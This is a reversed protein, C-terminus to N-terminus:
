SLLPTPTVTAWGCVVPNDAGVVVVATPFDSVVLIDESTNLSANFDFWYIVMGPGFRNLYSHLQPLNTSRHTYEDGFMAKSDIWNVVHYKGNPGKVGIPSSLKVDPTKAFGKSRLEDETEFSIGRNRLKELLVYEWEVGISHRIRDVSPSNFYDENICTRSEERLREDAILSLDRVYDSVTVKDGKKVLMRELMLRLLLYPSFKANEAIDIIEEGGNYRM